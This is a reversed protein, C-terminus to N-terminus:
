GAIPLRLLLHVLLHAEAQRTHLERLGLDDVEDHASRLGAGARALMADDRLLQRFQALVCFADQVSYLCLLMQIHKVLDLLDVSENDFEIIVIIFVLEQLLEEM